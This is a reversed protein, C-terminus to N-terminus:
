AARWQGANIAQQLAEVVSTMWRQNAADDKKGIINLATHRLDDRGIAVLTSLLGEYAGRDSGWFGLEEAFAIRAEHTSNKRIQYVLLAAGAIAGIGTAWLAATTGFLAAGAAASSITSGTTKTNWVSGRSGGYETGPTSGDSGVIAFGGAGQDSSAMRAAGAPRTLYWVLGAGAGLMVLVLAPTM